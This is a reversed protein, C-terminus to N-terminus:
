HEQRGIKLCREVERRKKSMRNIKNINIDINSFGLGWMKMEEKSREKTREIMM